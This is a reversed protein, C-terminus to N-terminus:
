SLPNVKSDGQATIGKGWHHQWQQFSKQFETISHSEISNDSKKTNETDQFRLEKLASKM